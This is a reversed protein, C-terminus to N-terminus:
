RRIAKSITKVINENQAEMRNSKRPRGRRRLSHALGVLMRKVKMHNSGMLAALDRLSMGTDYLMSWLEAPMITRLVEDDRVESVSIVRIRGGCAPACGVAKPKHILVLSTTIDAAKSIQLYKLRVELSEKCRECIGFVYVM